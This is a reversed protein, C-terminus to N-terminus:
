TSQKEPATEVAAETARVRGPAYREVYEVATTLRHVLRDSGASSIRSDTRRGHEESAWVGVLIKVGQLRHRLRKTLARAHRVAFPPVASVVVLPSPSQSIQEVVEGFLLKSSLVTADIGKERLRLALMEGAIEDAVDRAPVILVTRSPPPTSTAAEEDRKFYDPALDPLEDLLDQMNEQIYDRQTTELTGRQTDQETLELAPLLVHELLEDVSHSKLYEEVLERSEDEDSVLLRQYFQAGVPLANDDSLLVNLFQLSPVYRGIVVICVTLPTALVLGIPGWLWTWFLAAVLIGITSIGTSSQYLVPEMINNVILEAVVFLTVTLLPETWTDFFALSLVIGIMAGLWPGVYPLYRLVGAFLGWTLANPLGILYLGLAIMVGYGANIILQMRLYKSVRHSADDLAQTTVSIQDSGILRILRNRMEHRELLMFVVFVSVIGVTGLWGLAGPVVASLISYPSFEPQVIEVPIPRPEASTTPDPTPPEVAVPPPGAPAPVPGRASADDATAAREGSTSPSAQSGGKRAAHEVQKKAPETFEGSLDAVMKELKSLPGTDTHKFYQIRTIINDRYTPAESVLNVMQNGVIWGISFVIVFAGSVAILISPVRGLRWRELRSVMPALVFSLLIALALPMLVEAAFYLAAVSVVLLALTFM